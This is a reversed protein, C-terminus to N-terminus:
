QKKSKKKGKITKIFPLLPRDTSLSRKQRQTNKPADLHIESGEVRNPSVLSYTSRYLSKDKVDLKELESELTKYSEVPSKIEEEFRHAFSRLILEEWLKNPESKELAVGDSYKRGDQSYVIKKRHSMFLPRYSPTRKTPTKPVDDLETCNPSSESRHPAAYFDIPSDCPVNVMGIMEQLVHVSLRSTFAESNEEIAVDEKLSEGPVITLLIILFRAIITKTTEIFSKINYALKHPMNTCEEYNRNVIGLEPSLVQSNLEEPILM